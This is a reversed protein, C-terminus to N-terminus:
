EGRGFVVYAAAGPQSERRKSNGNVVFDGLGDGNFDGAGTVSCARRGSGSDSPYELRYGEAGDLATVDFVAPFPVTRGYILYGVQDGYDTTLVLDDFGDGNVDGAGAAALLTRYLDSPFALRFGADTALRALDVTRLKRAPAGFVIAAKGDFDFTIDREALVAIEDDGDGDLDFGSAVRIDEDPEAAGPLEVDALDALRSEPPFRNRGLIVFVSGPSLRYGVSGVIIDSLGDGDVDGHAVSFGSGENPLRIRFGDRPSPDSLRVIDRERGEQGFLVQLVKGKRVLLDDLGDGNVDGVPTIPESLGHRTDEGVVLFGRDAGLTRLDIAAPMGAGDGYIVVARGVKGGRNGFSQWVRVAFDEIGDGDVDGAGAVSAEDLNMRAGGVVEFARGDPLQTVDVKGTTPEAFGMVGFIKAQREGSGDPGEVTTGSLVLDVLGDGDLDAVGTSRCGHNPVWLSAGSSGDLNRLNVSSPQAVIELELPASPESDNGAADRAVATLTVPGPRLTETWVSWTRQVDWAYAVTRSGRRVLIVETQGDARGEVPLRRYRTRGDSDSTGTDAGALLRLTPPKPPVTDVIFRIQKSTVTEGDVRMRAHLVHRGDPLPSLRARWEGKRDAVATGVVQDGEVVEVQRGAEARGDIFPSAHRTLRNGDNSRGTESKFALRLSVHPEAAPAAGGPAATAAAPALLVVIALAIRSMPARREATGAARATGVPLPM